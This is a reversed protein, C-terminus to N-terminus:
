TSSIGVSSISDRISRGPLARSPERKGNKNTEVYFPAPGWMACGLGTPQAAPRGDPLMGLVLVQDAADSWDGSTRSVPDDRIEASLFQPKM